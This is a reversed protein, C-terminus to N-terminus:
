YMFIIVSGFSRSASRSIFNSTRTGSSIATRACTGISRITASPQPRAVRRALGAVAVADRGTGGHVNDLTLTHGGHVNDLTLTHALM